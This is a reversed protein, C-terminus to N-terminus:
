TERRTRATVVSASRSQPPTTLKDILWLEGLILGLALPMMAYGGFDHFVNEWTQGGVLTFAISTLVLRITNCLLAVPLCSLLVIFKQWLPRNILLVVLAGIVCFATVMRLGNCAEAIAIRTSGVDITNGYQTVDYGITELCFVASNTAWRQLPLTVAAQVRVPWPLMLFLFLVVPWIRAFLRWGCVFLVLAAICVVASLREASNYMYYLGLLRVLFALAIALIGWICPRLATDRLDQRRSWVVYLALFPVLVGSSYEDSERWIHWLDKWIDFFSWFLAGALIAVAVFPV